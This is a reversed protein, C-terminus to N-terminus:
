TTFPEGPLPRLLTTEFASDHGVTRTRNDIRQHDHKADAAAFRKTGRDFRRRADPRSALPPIPRGRGERTRGRCWAPLLVRRVRLALPVRDM